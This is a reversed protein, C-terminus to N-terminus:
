KNKNAAASLVKYSAAFSRRLILLQNKIELMSLESSNNLFKSEHALDYAATTHDMAAEIEDLIKGITELQNM